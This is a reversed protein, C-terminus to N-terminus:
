WRYEKRGDASRAPASIASESIASASNGAAQAAVLSPSREIKKSHSDSNRLRPKGSALFFGLAPGTEASLADAVPPKWGAQLPQKVFYIRTEGVVRSSVERTWLMLNALAEGIEDDGMRTRKRIQQLSQSGDRIAGLVRENATLAHGDCNRYRERLDRAAQRSATTKERICQRCYPNRGDRRSRCIGFDSVPKFSPVRGLVLCRPCERLELGAPKTMM